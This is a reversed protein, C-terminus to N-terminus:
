VLCGLNIAVLTLAAISQSDTIEGSQILQLAKKISMKETKNIGEVLRDHHKTKSLGSAVFVHGFNNMYANEAQFRGLEAWDQAALGLEEQLERKAAALASEGPDIGGAPVELAYIDTTYRYKRILHIDKDKDLAIIFAGDLAEIVNYEGSKGDPRIVEDRRVSYWKNKYVVKSALKKWPNDSENTMTRIKSM